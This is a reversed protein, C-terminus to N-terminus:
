ERLRARVKQRLSAIDKEPLHPRHVVGLTQHHSRGHRGAVEGDVDGVVDGGHGLREVENLSSKVFFTRFTPPWFDSSLEYM